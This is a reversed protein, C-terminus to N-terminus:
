CTPLRRPRRPGAPQAWGDLSHQATAAPETVESTKPSLRGQGNVQPLSELAGPPLCARGPRAPTPSSAPPLPVKGDEAETEAGTQAGEAKIRCGPPHSPLGAQQGQM